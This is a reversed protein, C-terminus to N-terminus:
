LLCELEIRVGRLGTTEQHFESFWNDDGDDAQLFSAVADETSKLCSGINTKDVKKCGLRTFKARLKGGAHFHERIRAVAEPQAMMALFVVLNAAKSRKSRARWDRMNTESATVVPLVWCGPPVFVPVVMPKPTRVRYVAKAKTKTKTKAVPEGFAAIRVGRVTAGKAALAEIDADLNRNRPM